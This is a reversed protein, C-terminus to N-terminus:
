ENQDMDVLGRSKRERGGEEHQKKASDMWPTKRERKRLQWGEEQRGLERVVNIGGLTGVSM